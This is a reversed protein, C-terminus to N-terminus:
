HAACIIGEMYHLLILDRTYWSTSITSGFTSLSNEHKRTAPFDTFAEEIATEIASPEIELTRDLASCTNDWYLYIAM